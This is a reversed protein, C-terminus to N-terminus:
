KLAAQGESVKQRLHGIEEHLRRADKERRDMKSIMAKYGAEKQQLDKYM